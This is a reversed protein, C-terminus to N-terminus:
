QVGQGPEAAQDGASDQTVQQQESLFQLMEDDRKSTDYHGRRASPKHTGRQERLFEQVPPALVCAANAFYTLALLFVHPSSGDDMGLMTAATGAVAFLVVGVAAAWRQGIYIWYMLAVVPGVRTVDALPDAGHMMRGIFLIADFSLLVAFCSLLITKGWQSSQSM